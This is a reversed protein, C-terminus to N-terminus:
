KLVYWKGMGERLIKRVFPHTIGLCALCDKEPKNFKFATPDSKNEESRKISRAQKCLIFFDVLTMEKEVEKMSTTFSPGGEEIRIKIFQNSTLGSNQWLFNIDHKETPYAFCRLCDIIQNSYNTSIFCNSYHTEDGQAFIREEGGLINQYNVTSQGEGSSRSSFILKAHKEMAVTNLSLTILVLLLYVTKM